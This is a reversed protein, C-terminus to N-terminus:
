QKAPCDVWTKDLSLNCKEAGFEKQLDALFVEYQRITEEAVKAARQAEDRAKVANLQAAQAALMKISIEEHRDKPIERPGASDQAFVITSLLLIAILKM